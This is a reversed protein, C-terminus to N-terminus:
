KIRELHLSLDQCLKPIVQDAYFETLQPDWNGDAGPVFSEVFNDTSIDKIEETLKRLEVITGQNKSKLLQSDFKNRYVGLFFQEQLLSSYAEPPSMQSNLVSSLNLVTSSFENCTLLAESIAEKYESSRKSHMTYAIAIAIVIVAFVLWKAFKQTSKYEV